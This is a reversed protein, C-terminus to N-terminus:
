NTSCIITTNNPDSFDARCRSPMQGGYGNEWGDWYDAYDDYDGSYGGSGSGGTSSDDGSGSTDSGGEPNYGPGTGAGVALQNPIRVDVRYATTRANADTVEVVINGTPIVFTPIEFGLDLTLMEFDIDVWAWQGARNIVEVVDFQEFTLGSNPTRAMNIAANGFDSPHVNPDRCASCAIRTHDQALLTESALLLAALTIALILPASSNKM